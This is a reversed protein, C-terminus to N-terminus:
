AEFISCVYSPLTFGLLVKILVVAIYGGLWNRSGARAIGLDPQESDNRRIVEINTSYRLAAVRCVHDATLLQSPTNTVNLTSPPLADNGSEQKHCLYSHSRRGRPHHELKAACAHRGGRAPATDAVLNARVELRWRRRAHPDGDRRQGLDGVFERSRQHQGTFAAAAVGFQGCCRAAASKAPRRPPDTAPARLHRPFRPVARDIAVARSPCHSSGRRLRITTRWTALRDAVAWSVAGATPPTVSSAEGPMWARTNANPSSSDVWRPRHIMTWLPSVSTSRTSALSRSTLSGVLAFDSSSLYRCASTFGRSSRSCASFAAFPLRM